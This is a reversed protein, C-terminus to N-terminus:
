FLEGAETPGVAFVEPIGAQLWSLDYVDLMAQLEAELLEPDPVGYVVEKSVHKNKLEHLLIDYNTLCIGITVWDKYLM